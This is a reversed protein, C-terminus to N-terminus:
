GEFEQIKVSEERRYKHKTEYLGISLLFTNTLTNETYHHM